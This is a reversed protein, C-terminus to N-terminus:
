AFLSGGGALAEAALITGSAIVGSRAALPTPDAVGPNRFTQLPAIQAIVEIRDGRALAAPGGYLRVRFPGSLKREDCEFGDFDAIFSPSGGRVVPSTRVVGEGACRSPAAIADRARIRADDFRRLTLEARAASFAFLCALVLLARPGADRGWVLAVGAFGGLAAEPALPALQGGVLALAGLLVLDVVV